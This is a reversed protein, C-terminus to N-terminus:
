VSPGTAGSVVPAGIGRRAKKLPLSTILMESLLKTGSRDVALKVLAETDKDSLVGTLVLRELGRLLMLYVALPFTEEHSTNSIAM